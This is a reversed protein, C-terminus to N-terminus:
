WGVTAGAAARGTMKKRTKGRRVAAARAVREGVTVWAAGDSDARQRRSTETAVVAMAKGGAGGKTQIGQERPSERKREPNGRLGARDQDRETGTRGCDSGSSKCGSGSRLKMDKVDRLLPHISAHTSIRSM